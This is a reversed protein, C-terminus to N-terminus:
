ATLRATVPADSIIEVEDFKLGAFVLDAVAEAETDFPGHTEGTALEIVTFSPDWMPIGHFFDSREFSRRACSQCRSAATPASAGPGANGTGGAARRLTGASPGAANPKWRPAHPAPPLAIPPGGEKAPAVAPPAAPRTCNGNALRARSGAHSASPAARRPNRKGADGVFAPPGAIPPASASVSATERSASKPIRTHWLLARGSYPFQRVTSSLGARLRGTPVMRRLRATQARVAPGNRSDGM